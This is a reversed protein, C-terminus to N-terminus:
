AHRVDMGLTPGLGEPHDGYPHEGLSRRRELDALRRVLDESLVLTADETAEMPTVAAENVRRLLLGFLRDEASGYLPPADLFALVAELAAEDDYAADPM